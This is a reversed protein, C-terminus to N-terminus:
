LINASIAWKSGKLIKIEMNNLQTIMTGLYKFETMKKFEYSELTKEVQRGERRRNVVVYESKEENIRLSVTSTNRYTKHM